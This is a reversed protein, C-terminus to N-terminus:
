KSMEMVAKRLIMVNKMMKDFSEPILSQQGDSAAEEPRHHVEVTIGDAGIAVAAKTLPEVLWYIGGAHSPDVVIPLHSKRQIVPVASIDLTNRTWTEFTRIGRECLIVNDNGESMIYEAAMLFEEYTAALGRKLLVPTKVKGAEKLLDFNQMNRAGIQIIDVDEAFDEIHKPAMMETIIPLGTEERAIKMIDIGAKGLGQFSYPSTRPKFAGGRLFNAGSAKVAKAITLFQEESEIACPGAIVGFHGGGIKQGRVEVVTDEPRFSRNAKKYPEQIRMVREVVNNLEIQGASLSRTDGILGFITQNEGVTVSVSIGKSELQKKMKELEQEPAGPKFVIVM